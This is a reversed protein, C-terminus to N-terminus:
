CIAPHAVEVVILLAAAAWAKNLLLGTGALESQHEASTFDNGGYVRFTLKQSETLTTHAVLAQSHDIDCACRSTGCLGCMRLLRSHTPCGAMLAEM